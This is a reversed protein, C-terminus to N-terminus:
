EPFGTHQALHQVQFRFSGADARGPDTAEEVVRHVVDQSDVAQRKLAKVVEGDPLVDVVGAQSRMRWVCMELLRWPLSVSTGEIFAGELIADHSPTREAPRDLRLLPPFQGSGTM